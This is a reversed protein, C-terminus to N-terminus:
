RALMSDVLMRWAVPQQGYPGHRDKIKRANEAVAAGATVKKMTISILIDKGKM